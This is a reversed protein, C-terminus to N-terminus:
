LALCHHSGRIESAAVGSGAERCHFDRFGVASCKMLGMQRGIILKAMKCSVNSKVHRGVIEWTSSLGSEPAPGM